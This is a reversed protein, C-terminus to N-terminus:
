HKILQDGMAVQSRTCPVEYYVIYMGDMFLDMLGM